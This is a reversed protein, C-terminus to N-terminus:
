SGISFFPFCLTKVLAPNVVTAFAAIAAPVAGKPDGRDMTYFLLRCGVARTCCKARWAIELPV